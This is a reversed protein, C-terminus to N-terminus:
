GLRPDHQWKTLGSTQQRTITLTRIRTIIKTGKIKIAGERKLEGVREEEGM